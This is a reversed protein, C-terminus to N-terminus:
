SPESGGNDICTQFEATTMQTRDCILPDPTVLGQLVPWFLYALAGAGIIAALWIWPMPRRRTLRPPDSEPAEGSVVTAAPLHWHAEDGEGQGKPRAGMAYLIGKLKEPDSDFIGLGKRIASFSRRRQPYKPDDFLARIDAEVAQRLAEERDSKEQETQASQVAQFLKVLDGIM